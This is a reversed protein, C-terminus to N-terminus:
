YSGCSRGFAREARSGGLPGSAFAEGLATLYCVQKEPPASFRKWLADGIEILNDNIAGLNYLRDAMCARHVGPDGCAALHAIYAEKRAM